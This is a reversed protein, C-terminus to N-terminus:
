LSSAMKMLTLRRKRAEHEALAFAVASSDEAAQRMRKEAIRTDLLGRVGVETDPYAAFTVPSIDYLEAVGGPLITRVIGDETDEYTDGDAKIRFAFSMQDVDGRSIPDLVIHRITDNDPADTVTHLGRDDEDVKLTGSKTRGLVFNTDHNFLSRIDSAPIADKFAGPSIKERFGGLDDSLSDFVAAHGEITSGGEGKERLEVRAHVIRSEYGAPLTRKSM